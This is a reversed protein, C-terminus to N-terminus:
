YEQKTINELLVHLFGNILCFRGPSYGMYNLLAWMYKLPVQVLSYDWTFLITGIRLLM